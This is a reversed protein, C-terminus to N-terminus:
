AYIVRILFRSLSDIHDKNVYWFFLGSHRKIYKTLFDTTEKNIEECYVDLFLKAQRKNALYDKRIRNSNRLKSFIKITKLRPAIGTVANGHRRYKVTGEKLLSVYGWFSAVMAFWHDHMVISSYNDVNLSHKLLNYNFCMTCGWCLPALTLREFSLDSFKGYRNYEFFSNNIIELKEDCLILDSFVLLCEDKSYKEELEHMRYLSREIKDELWVDDQDCFMYYESTNEQNLRNKCLWMFNEKANGFHCNSSVIEIKNPNNKVYEDLISMTYDTSLDDSIVLHWDKYSQNLISDLQERIYKDGNYTAMLIEVM